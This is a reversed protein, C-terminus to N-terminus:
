IELMRLFEKTRKNEPNNFIKDPSGEELIIGNDMFLVRDAIEKTFNMEHSVILMTNNHNKSLDRIVNLVEGVLEPDLSSTPEDFLIIRPNVAMARAIGARQQQGGSLRSPYENIKDLLGVQKILKLAKEEAEDKDMKKILMPLIVNGLITKNNFLNYNQFVMSTKSRLKKLDNKTYDETNFVLDDIEIIGSEPKELYNLCRLLTSKGTGSPGIIAVIEGSEIELNIGKLVKLSGFSKYLNKIKIM